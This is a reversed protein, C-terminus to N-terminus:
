AANRSLCRYLIQVEPAHRAGEMGAIKHARGKKDHCAASGAAALRCHPSCSPGSCTECARHPRHRIDNWAMYCCHYNAKGRHYISALAHCCPSSYCASVGEGLEQRRGPLAECTGCWSGAPAAIVLRFALKNVAEWVALTFSIPLQCQTSYISCRRLGHRKYRNCSLRQSFDKSWSVVAAAPLKGDSELHVGPNKVTKTCRSGPVALFVQVM